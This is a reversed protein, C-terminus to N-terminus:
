KNRKLPILTKIDITTKVSLFPDVIDSHTGSCNLLQCRCNLWFSKLALLLWPFTFSLLFGLHLGPTWLIVCKFTFGYESNLSKNLNCSLKPQLSSSFLSKEELPSLLHAWTAPMMELYFWGKKESTNTHWSCWCSLEHDCQQQEAQSSAM